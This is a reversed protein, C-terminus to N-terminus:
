TGHPEKQYLHHTQIYDIVVDPMLYRPSRGHRLIERINSASIDLATIERLLINGTTSEPITDRYRRQWEARLEPSMKPNDAHLAFGPRHAVTIHALDFLAQWRHWGPIGLFADAGLLLYLPQVAGLEERLSALTDVMYSPGAREFERLDISFLPNGAIALRAIEVRHQAAVHPEARHPPRAAPLFRVEALDLSDALEVAMRLHGFHIPDFTGGLIGVPAQL